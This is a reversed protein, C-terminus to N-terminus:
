GDAEPGRSPSQEYPCNRCGNECCYGRSRLFEATLAGERDFTPTPESVAEAGSPKLPM